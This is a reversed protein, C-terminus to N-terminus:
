GQQGEPPLSAFTDNESATINNLWSIHEASAGTRKLKKLHTHSQHAQWPMNLPAWTFQTQQGRELTGILIQSTQRRLVIDEHGLGEGATIQRVNRTELESCHHVHGALLPGGGCQAMSQELWPIENISGVNHDYNPRPDKLPRHTFFVQHETPTESLQNFLKARHGSNVPFFDAATDINVFRTGALTFAHNMPGIQSRFQDYILGNDHFDHNGISVYCPLPSKHLRGIAKEYDDKGYNIDGLHLFFEAGLEKARTLCWSLEDNGGTDGIVAFRFGDNAHPMVWSLEINQQGKTELTIHRNIGDQTEHLHGISKGNVKLQAGSAVNKIGFTVTSSEKSQVIITPEPAIARFWLATGAEINAETHSGDSSEFNTTNIADLMNIVANDTEAHFELASPEFSLRPYRLGRYYSYGALSAISACTIFKRRSVM